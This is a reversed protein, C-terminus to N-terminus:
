TSPKDRWAQIFHSAEQTLNNNQGLYQINLRIKTWFDFLSTKSNQLYCKVCPYIFAYNGHVLAGDREFGVKLQM